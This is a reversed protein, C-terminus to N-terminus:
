WTPPSSGTIRCRPAPNRARAPTRWWRPSRGLSSAAGGGDGAALMPPPNKLAKVEVIDNKTLLKLAQVAADLAPLAKDLDAQADDAIAKAEAAKENAAKEQALVKIKTEDAVATDATIVQIMEEVEVSTKELVPQLEVLEKEMVGVQEATSELKDLGIQLRERMTEIEERKERLLRIFTQLLELYSTPTVYNYRRLTDFFQKSKREVSQHIFVCSEVVSAVLDPSEFTKATEALFTNAVSNLAELPWESFWDITCCNVLSPFMRIRQRFEDSVPSMALVCHLNSRVRTIFYANVANKTVPLGMSQMIPRLTAGIAETDENKLLNPVEGSNLINNIDELFNEQVIQTDTFLFVVNKGECGAMMLVKRLDDRWENKGYGKAVEIQFLDFEELAAALRTLSQRGSGGM